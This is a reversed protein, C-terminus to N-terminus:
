VVLANDHNLYVSSKIIQSLTIKVTYSIILRENKKRNKAM